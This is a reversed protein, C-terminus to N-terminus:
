LEPNFEVTSEEQSEIPPIMDYVIGVEGKGYSISKAGVGQLVGMVYVKPVDGTLDILTHQKGMSIYHPPPLHIPEFDIRRAVKKKKTPVEIEPQDDVIIVEEPIADSAKTLDVDEMSVRKRKKSAKVNPITTPNSMKSKLDLVSKVTLYAKDRLIIKKM